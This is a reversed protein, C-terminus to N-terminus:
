VPRLGLLSFFSVMAALSMALLDEVTTPLVATLLVGFAGAGPPTLPLCALHQNLWPAPHAARLAHVGSAHM